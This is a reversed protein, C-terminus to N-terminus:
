IVELEFKTPSDAGVREMANAGLKGEKGARGPTASRVKLSRVWFSSDREWRYTHTFAAAFPSQLTSTCMM